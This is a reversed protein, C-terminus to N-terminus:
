VERSVFGSSAGHVPGKSAGGNSPKFGLWKSCAKSAASAPACASAVAIAALGSGGEKLFVISASSRLPWSRVRTAATKKLRADASMVFELRDFPRDRWPEGTMVAFYIEVVRQKPPDGREMRALAFKAEVGFLRPNEIAIIRGKHAIAAAQRICGLRPESLDVLAKGCKTRLEALVNEGIFLGIRQNERRLLIERSKGSREAGGRCPGRSVATKLARM